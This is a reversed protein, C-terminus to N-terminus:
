LLGISCTREDEDEDKREREGREEQNVGEEKGLAM